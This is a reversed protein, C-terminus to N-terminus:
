RRKIMTSIANGDKNIAAPIVALANFFV